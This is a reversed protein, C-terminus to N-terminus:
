AITKYFEITKKIHDFVMSWIFKRDVSSLESKKEEILQFENVLFDVTFSGNIDLRTFTNSRVRADKANEFGRLQQNRQHTMENISDDLLVRFQKDKLVDYITAFTPKKM